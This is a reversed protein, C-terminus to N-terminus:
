SESIWNRNSDWYFSFSTIGELVITPSHHVMWKFWEASPMLMSFISPWDTNMAWGRHVQSPAPRRWQCCQGPCQIWMRGPLGSLGPCHLETSQVYAECKWSEASLITHFIINSPSTKQAIDTKAQIPVNLEANVVEKKDQAKNLLISHSAWFYSFTANTLRALLWGSSTFEAFPKNKWGKGFSIWM